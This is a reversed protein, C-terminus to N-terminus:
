LIYKALLSNLPIAPHMTKLKIFKGDLLGSYNPIKKFGFKALNQSCKISYYKVYKTNGSEACQHLLFINQLGVIAIAIPM